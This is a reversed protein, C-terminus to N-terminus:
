HAGKSARSYNHEFLSSPASLTHIYKDKCPSSPASQTSVACVQAAAAAPLDSVVRNRYAGQRSYLLDSIVGTYIILEKSTSPCLWVAVTGFDSAVIGVVLDPLNPSTGANLTAGRLLYGFPLRWRNAERLGGLPRAVSPACALLVPGEGAPESPAGVFQGDDGLM